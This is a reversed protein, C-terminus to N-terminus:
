EFFLAHKEFNKRLTFITKLRRDYLKSSFIYKISYITRKLIFSVFIFIPVVVPIIAISCSDNTRIRDILRKLIKTNKYGKVFVIKSTWNQQTIIQKHISQNLHLKVELLFVLCSFLAIKILSFVLMVDLAWDRFFPLLQDDM